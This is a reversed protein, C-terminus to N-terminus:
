ERVVALRRRRKLQCSSLSQLARGTRALECSWRPGVPGLVTTLYDVCGPQHVRVLRDRRISPFLVEAVLTTAASALVNSRSQPPEPQAILLVESAKQLYTDDSLTQDLISETM